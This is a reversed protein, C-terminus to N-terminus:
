NEYGGGPVGVGEEVANTKKKRKKKKQDSKNEETKFQGGGVGVGVGVGVSKRDTVTTGETGSKRERDGLISAPCILLCGPNSCPLNIFM